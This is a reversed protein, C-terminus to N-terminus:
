GKVWAGVFQKQKKKQKEQKQKEEETSLRRRQWETQNVNRFEAPEKRQTWM